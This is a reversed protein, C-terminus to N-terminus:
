FPTRVTAIWAHNYTPTLAPSTVLKPSVAVQYGLGVALNLRGALPFRGLIIGPTIFIQTRADREGGYWHTLNVEVQPWLPPLVHYQFAINWTLADGLVDHYGTPLAVGLTTQFDFKGWGKGGAITPTILWAKGTFAPAGTPATLGLFATLIYDGDQANASLLRQKVVLFPWDGWGSAPKTNSRDLYPPLNILVENTLTPILELGKGSDFQDINAHNGAHEWYQDYRFEQELRPTVTVLPTMWSPQSDKAAQSRQFWRDFYEEVNNGYPNSSPTPAPTTMDQAFAAPAAAMLSAALLAPGFRSRMSM